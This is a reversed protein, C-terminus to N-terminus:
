IIEPAGGNETSGSLKIDEMVDDGEKDYGDGSAGDPGSGTTSNNSMAMSDKLVAGDADLALESSPINHKETLTSGSSRKRYIIYFMGGVVALVIIVIVATVGGSLGGGSAAAQNGKAALPSQAGNGGSAWNDPKTGEVFQCHEGEYGVVCDCGLHAADASVQM